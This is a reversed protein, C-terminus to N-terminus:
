HLSFEVAVAVNDASDVGEMLEAKASDVEKDDSDIEADLVPVVEM